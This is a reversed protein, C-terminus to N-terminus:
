ISDVTKSESSREQDENDTQSELKQLVQYIELMSAFIKIIYISKNPFKESLEGYIELFERFLMDHRIVYKKGGVEFEIKVSVM